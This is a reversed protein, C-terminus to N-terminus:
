RPSSSLKRPTASSSPTIAAIACIVAVTINVFCFDKRRTDVILILASFFGVTASQLRFVVSSANQALPAVPAIFPIAESVYAATRIDAPNRGSIVIEVDKFDGVLVKEGDVFIVQGDVIASVGKLIVSLSLPPTLPNADSAASSSSGQPTPHISSHIAIPLVLPFALFPDTRLTIAPSEAPADDPSQHPSSFLCVAFFDPRFVCRVNVTADPDLVITEPLDVLSAFAPRDCHPYLVGYRRHSVRSAKITVRVREKWRNHLLFDFAPHDLRCLVFSHKQESQQLERSLEVQESAAPLSPLSSPKSPRSLSSSPPIPHSSPKSPRFHSSPPKSSDSHSSSPKSSRSRSSSPKSSDSRSLSPKMTEMRSLSKSSDVHSSASKLSGAHSLSSKLSDVHSLSSKIPEVHSLEKKDARSLSSKMSEVRSLSPKMSEVRSLEKDDVYSLGKLSEMRSLGKEGGVCEKVSGGVRSLEKDDERALEGDGPGQPSEALLEDLKTFRELVTGVSLVSPSVTILSELSFSTRVPIEVITRFTERHGMVDVLLQLQGLVAPVQMAAIQASELSHVSIPSVGLELPMSEGASIELATERPFKVAVAQQLSVQKFLPTVHIGATTVNRLLVRTTQTEAPFPVHEWVISEIVNGRPDAVTLPSPLVTAAIVVQTVHSPSRKTAFPLTWENRGPVWSVGAMDLEVVLTVFSDEGIEVTASTGGKVVTRAATEGAMHSRSFTYFVTPIFGAPFRDLTVSVPGASLNDIRLDLRPRRSANAFFTMTKATACSVEIKELFFRGTLEIIQQFYNDGRANFFCLQGRIDATGRPSDAIAADTAADLFEGAKIGLRVEVEKNPPLIIGATIPLLQLSTQLEAPISAQEEMLLTPVSSISSFSGSNHHSNSPSFVGEDDGATKRRDAPGILQLPLNSYPAVCLAIDTDNRLFLSHIASERPNVFFRSETDCVAIRGLSLKTAPDSQPRLSLQLSTNCSLLFVPLERWVPVEAHCVRIVFSSFGAPFAAIHLSIYHYKGEEIIGEMRNFTVKVAPDCRIVELVYPLKVGMSENRICFEGSLVTGGRSRSVLLLYPTDLSLKVLGMQVSYDVLFSFLDRLEPTEPEAPTEDALATLDQYSPPLSRSLIPEKKPCRGTIRLKGALSRSFPWLNGESLSFVRNEVSYQLTLFVESEQPVLVSEVPTHTEDVLLFHNIGAPEDVALFLDVDRLNRVRLQTFSVAAPDGPSLFLAPKLAFVGPRGEMAPDLDPLTLFLPNKVVATVLCSAANAPFSPDVFTITERICDDDRLARASIHLPVRLELREHPRLSAEVPTRLLPSPQTMVHLADSTTNMLTMTLSVADDLSLAGIACEAPSLSLGSVLPKLLLPLTQLCCRARRPSVVIFGLPTFSQHQLFRRSHPSSKWRYFVLLSSQPPLKVGQLQTRRSRWSDHHVSHVFEEMNQGGDIEQFTFYVCGFDPSIQFCNDWSIDVLLGDFLENKVVFFHSGSNDDEVLLTPTNPPTPKTPDTPITMSKTPDTSSPPKTPDTFPSRTPDTSALSKNLDMLSTMSKNLDALTTVSKNLDISAMSKMSESSIGGVKMSEGSGGMRKGDVSVGPISVSFPLLFPRLVPTSLPSASAQFLPNRVTGSVPVSLTTAGRTVM